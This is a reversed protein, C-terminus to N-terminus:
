IPSTSEKKPADEKIKDKDVDEKTTGSPSTLKEEM